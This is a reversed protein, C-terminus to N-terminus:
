VKVKPESSAMLYLVGARPLLHTYLYYMINTSRHRGNLSDSEIFTPVFNQSPIKKM